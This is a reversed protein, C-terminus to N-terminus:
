DLNIKFAHADDCHLQEPVYCLKEQGTSFTAKKISSPMIAICSSRTWPQRM